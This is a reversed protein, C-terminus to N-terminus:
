NRRKKYNKTFLENYIKNQISYNDALYGHAEEPNEFLILNTKIDSQYFENSLKSLVEFMEKVSTFDSCYLMERVIKEVTTFPENECWCMRVQDFYSDLDLNALYMDSIQDEGADFHYDLEHYVFREAIAQLSKSHIFEIHREGEEILEIGLLYSKDTLEENECNYFTKDSLFSMLLGLPNCGNKQKPLKSLVQRALEPNINKYYAEAIACSIAATTDSDGGISISTKICDEFDTSILFCYIAQPVTEQCTENFYYNKKLNEYDFDLDYYKSAYNKIFEKSKGIRAYYVCMATVEAGKLGEPHNHTVVTLNHALEKVEEENRGYWGAASIRMAAGNGYSYYPKTDNSFLWHYFSGGYGRDPYAQGWKKYTNVIKELDNVNGNILCEYAALTMISDDTLEYNENFLEIDKSRKNNFEYISGIMDGILAGLM